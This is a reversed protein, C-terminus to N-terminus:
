ILRLGLGVAVALILSALVEVAYLLARRRAIAKPTDVVLRPLAVLPVLAFQGLLVLTTIVGRELIGAYKNVTPSFGASATRVLGYATFEVAIWAPMTIFAYGLLYLWLRNSQLVASLDEALWQAALAGSVALVALIIGLHLTQDVILRVVPSLGLGPRWFRNGLWLADIATHSLGILLAWPWWAPNFVICFALTVLLVVGGHALVGQIEKSKWRALADWQLIYDGVLHALFMGIVM